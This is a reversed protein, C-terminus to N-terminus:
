RIGTGCCAGCTVPFAGDGRVYHAPEWVHGKGKCQRCPEDDATPKRLADPRQDLLASVAAADEEAWKRRLADIKPGREHWHPRLDEAAYIPSYFSM